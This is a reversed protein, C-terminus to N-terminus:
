IQNFKLKFINFSINKKSKLIESNKFTFTPLLAENKQFCKNYNPDSTIIYLTKPIHQKYNEAKITNSQIIHLKKHTRDEKRVGLCVDRCIETSVNKHLTESIPNLFSVILDTGIGFLYTIKNQNLNLVENYYTAKNYKMLPINKHYYFTVNELCQTEIFETKIAELLQKLYALYDTIEKNAQNENGQVEFSSNFNKQAFQLGSYAYSFREKINSGLSLMYGEQQPIQLKQALLKEHIMSNRVINATRDIEYVSVLKQGLSVFNVVFIANEFDSFQELLKNKKEAMLPGKGFFYENFVIFCPMNDIKEKQIYEKLNKFLTAIEDPALSDTGRKTVNVVYLPSSGNFANQLDESSLAFAHFYCLNFFIFALLKKM